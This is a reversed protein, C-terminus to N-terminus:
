SPDLASPDGLSCDTAAPASVPATARFRDAVLMGVLAAAVFLAPARTGFGLSVIAPGPCYGALGWGVGFVAAGALLAADIGPRPPLSSPVHSPAKRAALRLATAHVAIAGLMVAALNPNWSGSFDLFGIVNNPDTMGSVVLGVGFLTGSLLATALAMDRVNPVRVNM